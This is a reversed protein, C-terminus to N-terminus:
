RGDTWILRSGNVSVRPPVGSTEGFGLSDKHGWGEDTAAIVACVLKAVVNGELAGKADGPSTGGACADDSALM